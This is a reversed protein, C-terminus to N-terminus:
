FNLESEDIIDIRQVSGKYHTPNINDKQSQPKNFEEVNNLYVTEEEKTLKGLLFRKELEIFEKKTLLKVKTM